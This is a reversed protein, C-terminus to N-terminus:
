ALVTLPRQLVKVLPSEIEGEFSEPQPGPVEWWESGVFCTQLRSECDRIPALLGSHSGEDKIGAPQLGPVEWWESGM